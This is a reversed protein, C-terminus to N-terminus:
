EHLKAGKNMYIIIEDLTVPEILLDKPLKGISSSEAIGDFGTSHERLGIILKKQELNM